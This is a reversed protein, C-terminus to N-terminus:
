QGAWTGVRHSLVEEIGDIQLFGLPTLHLVKDRIFWLGSSTGREWDLADAPLWALPVGGSTRLGLIIRELLRAQLNLPDVFEEPLKGNEVACFYNDLQTHNGYRRKGWFGHAAAGLGLWPVRQWYNCNHRSEAGPRAFNSVEYQRVGFEALHKVAAMYLTETHEDTPPFILGKRVDSELRTGSHLELIYLSFHEVGLDVAESLEALLIDQQLGPGIIWDASIRDFTSSAVKLARRATEPQCARGLLKLVEKNLSQVGLSIRNIGAAKWKKAKTLDLSEPNAECTLELDKSCNLLHVTGALLRDMLVPELESPTGGGIYATGLTRKGQLTPCSKLRLDFERVVADVYRM